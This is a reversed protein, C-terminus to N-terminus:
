QTGDLRRCIVRLWPWLSLLKLDFIQMFFKLAEYDCFGKISKTEVHRAVTYQGLYAFRSKQRATWDQLFTKNMFKMSNGVFCSM